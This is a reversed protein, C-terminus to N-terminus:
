RRSAYVGTKVVWADPYGKRTKLIRALRDADSRTTFDGVRIKYLDSEEELYVEVPLDKVRAKVEQEAQVAATRGRFSHIQVRYGVVTKAPARTEAPAPAPEPSPTNSTPTVPAKPVPAPTQAATEAPMSAARDDLM